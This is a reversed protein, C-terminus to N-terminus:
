QLDDGSAAKYRSRFDRQVRKHSLWMFVLTELLKGMKGGDKM